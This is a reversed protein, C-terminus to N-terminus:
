QLTWPVPTKEHALYGQVTNLVAGIAGIAKHQLGGQPVCRSNGRRWRGAGTAAYRGPPLSQYKRASCVAGAGCRACGPPHAAKCMTSTVTGQTLRVQSCKGSSNTTWKRCVSPLNVLAQYGSQAWPVNDHLSLFPSPSQRLLLARLKVVHLSHLSVRIGGVVVNANANGPWTMWCPWRQLASGGVILQLEQIM